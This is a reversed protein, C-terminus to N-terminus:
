QRSGTKANINSTKLAINERSWIFVGNVLIHFSDLNLVVQSSRKGKFSINELLLAALAGKRNADFCFNYQLNYTLWDIYFKIRRRM